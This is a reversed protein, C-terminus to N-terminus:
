CEASRKKGAPALTTLATTCCMHSTLSTTHYTYTTTHRVATGIVRRTRHTDPPHLVYTIYPIVHSTPPPRVRSAAPAACPHHPTTYENRHTPQGVQSAALATTHRACMPSTTHYTRYLPQRVQSAALAPTHRAAHGRSAAARRSCFSASTTASAARSAAASSPSSPLPSRPCCCPPLHTATLRRTLLRTTTRYRHRHTALLRAAPSSSVAGSRLLPARVASPPRPSLAGAPSGATDGSQGPDQTLPRGAPVTLRGTPSERVESGLRASGLRRASSRRRASGLLRSKVRRRGIVEAGLDFTWRPAM